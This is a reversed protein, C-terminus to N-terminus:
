ANNQGECATCPRTSFGDNDDTPVLGTGECSRCVPAIPPPVIPLQGLDHDRGLKDAWDPWDSLAVRHLTVKGEPSRELFEVVFHTPFAALFGHIKSALTQAKPDRPHRRLALVADRLMGIVQSASDKGPPTTKINVM